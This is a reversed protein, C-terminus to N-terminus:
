ASVPPCLDYFVKQITALTLFLYKQLTESLSFSGIYFSPSKTAVNPIVMTQYHASQVDSKLVLVCIRMDWHLKTIKPPSCSQYQIMSVPDDQGPGSWSYKVTLRETRFFDTGQRPQQTGAFYKVNNQFSTHTVACCDQTLIMIDFSIKQFNQRM